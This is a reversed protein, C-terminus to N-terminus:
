GESGVPRLVRPHESRKNGVSTLIQQFIIFNPEARDRLCVQGCQMKISLHLALSRQPDQKTHSHCLRLYRAPFTIRPLPGGAKSNPESRWFLSSEDSSNDNMFTVVVRDRTMFIIHSNHFKGRSNLERTIHVTDTKRFCRVNKCCVSGTKDSTPSSQLIITLTEQRGTGDCM